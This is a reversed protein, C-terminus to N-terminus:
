ELTYSILKDQNYILKLSFFTKDSELLKFFIKDGEWIPLSYVASKEIWVLEGENCVTKIEDSEANATFLHMYETGYKDSVFTVIGRYVLKLDSLGTEEFIERRACDYPTEGAEFKGGVGVWKDQNEDNKKKNRHMMLYKENYEIYCLSTNKM